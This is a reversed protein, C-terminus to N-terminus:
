EASSVGKKQTSQWGRPRWANVIKGLGTVLFLRGLLIELIALSQGPNSAPVLNGYGTTTLTVFSFFLNQSATRRRRRRLVSPKPQGWPGFRSRSPSASCCTPPSRVSCPRRTSREALGSTASSRSPLWSMSPPRPLFVFALSGLRARRVPEHHGGRDGCRPARGGPASVRRAQSTRLALWVTGIQTVLVISAGWPRTLTTALVYTAVIMVMVLGYSDTSPLAHVLRRIARAERDNDQAHEPPNPWRRVKSPRCTPRLRSHPLGGATRARSGTPRSQSRDEVAYALILSLPFFLLSLLFYGIFSHGKRGAVRAPWFAIAIWIILGIIGLGWWM